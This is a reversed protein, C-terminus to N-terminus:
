VMATLFAPKLPSMRELIQYEPGQSVGNAKGKRDLALGIHRRKGGFSRDAGGLGGGFGPFSVTGGNLRDM